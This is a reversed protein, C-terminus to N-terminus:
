GEGKQKPSSKFGELTLLQEKLDRGGGYEGIAGHTHIVRHCPVVIPIPNKGCASGVARTAKPRNIHKALMKYSVTEGWKISGISDWVEKQFSSGKLKFPLSFEKRNGLFYEDLQCKIKKQFSSLVSNDVLCDQEFSIYALCEKETGIKLNCIDSKYYFEELVGGKKAYRGM